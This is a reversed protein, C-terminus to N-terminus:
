KKLGWCHSRFACESCEKANNKKHTRPPLTRKGESNTNKVINKLGKAEAVRQSVVAEDRDVPFERFSQDNKNEYLFKGFQLGSLYLYIQMQVNHNDKPAILRRFAEARMSKFDIVIHSDEESADEPILGGNIEQGRLDLIGDVHGGLMTEEDYFGVEHYSFSSNKAGDEEQCVNCMKPKHIGLKEDKGYVTGCDKCRWVGKLLGSDVLNQGLRYHMGHGNDFIRQLRPDILAVNPDSASCVGEYEYFKYVLKRHCSDFESPHFHKYDRDNNESKKTLVANITHELNINLSITSTM